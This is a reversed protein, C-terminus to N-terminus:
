SPPPNHLIAAVAAARAKAQIASILQCVSDVDEIDVFIPGHKISMVDWVDRRDSGMESWTRAFPERAPFFRLTGIGRSHKERILTPLSDIDASAALRKRYNQVVIVRRDTVAYYTCKKKRAAHIFRGWIMYQGMVVFPIGWLVMFVPWGLHFPRSLLLWIAGIEWVTTFGGSILSIPVLSENESKHFVVGPNPRGAWIVREGSTLEPQVAALADQDIHFM